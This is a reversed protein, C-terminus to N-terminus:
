SDILNLNGAATLTVSNNTRDVHLTENENEGTDTAVFLDYRSTPIIVCATSDVTYEEVKEDM